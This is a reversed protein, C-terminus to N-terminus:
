WNIPRFNERGSAWGAIRCVTALLFTVEETHFCKGSISPRGSDAKWPGKRRFHSNARSRLDRLRIPPFPKPVMPLNGISDELTQSEPHM